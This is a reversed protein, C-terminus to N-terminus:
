EAMLTSFLFGVVLFERLPVHITHKLTLHPSCFGLCLPLINMKHEFQAINMRDDCFSIYGIRSKEKNILFLKLKM